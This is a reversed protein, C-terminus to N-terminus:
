LLTKAQEALRAGEPISRQDFSIPKLEDEPATEDCDQAVIKREASPEPDPRLPPPPATLEQKKSCGLGTVLLAIVLLKM